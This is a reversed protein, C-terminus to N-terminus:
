GDEAEVPEGRAEALERRIDEARVERPWTWSRGRTPMGAIAVARRYTLWGAETGYHKGCDQCTSYREGVLPVECLCARELAVASSCGSHYLHPTPEWWRRARNDWAHSVNVPRRRTSRGGCWDCREFLRRRLEQLPPVQLHWHHVHFRWGRLSKMRWEGNSGRWRVYQPCVTGSDAGGPEVHWVTLIAPWYVQWGALTWHSQYSSPKWWPFPDKTMPPHDCAPNCRHRLKISWRPYRDAVRRPRGPWPRRIDFAVVMPDHV